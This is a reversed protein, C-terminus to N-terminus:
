DLKETLKKLTGEQSFNRVSVEYIIPSELNKVVRKM